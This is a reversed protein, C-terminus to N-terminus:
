PVQLFPPVDPAVASPWVVVDAAVLPGVDDAVAAGFAVFEPVMTFPCGALAGFTAWFSQYSAVVGRSSADLSFSEALIDVCQCHTKISMM